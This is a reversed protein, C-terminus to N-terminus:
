VIVWPDITTVHDIGSNTVDSYWYTQSYTVEDPTGPFLIEEAKLVVDDSNYYIKMKPNFKANATSFYKLERESRGILYEQDIIGDDRAM